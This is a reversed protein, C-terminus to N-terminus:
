DTRAAVLYHWGHRRLGAVTERSLRQLTAHLRQAAPDGLVPRGLFTFPGYGITTRRVARLGAGALLRDISGPLHLYSQAGDSPHGAARKYIRFPVKLPALMPSERPELLFNLRARNDATLVAWGGPVLVRRIESLAGALDRLWPLLGLAVVLEFEQDAFPLRQVDAQVVQVTGDVGLTRAQESALRVMEQSSDAATVRFGRRGLQAALLGAGCGLELVRAGRQLGLEDIWRAATHMRERYILGDLGTRGYVDTWYGAVADFFQEVAPQQATGHPDAGTVTV